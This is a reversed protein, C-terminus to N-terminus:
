FPKFATKKLAEHIGKEALLLAKRLTRNKELFANRDQALRDRELTMADLKHLLDTIRKTDPSEKEALAYGCDFSHRMAQEINSRADDRAGVAECYFDTNLRGAFWDGSKASPYTM